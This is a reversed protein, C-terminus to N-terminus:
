PLSRQRRIKANINRKDINAIVDCISIDGHAVRELDNVVECSPELGELRQQAIANKVYFLNQKIENDALM